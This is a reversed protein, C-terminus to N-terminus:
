DIYTSYQANFIQACDVPSQPFPDPTGTPCDGAGGVQVISQVQAFLTGPGSQTPLWSMAVDVQEGSALGSQKPSAPNSVAVVNPNISVPTGDGFDDQWFFQVCISVATAGTNLIRVCITIPYDVSPVDSVAICNFFNRDDSTSAQNTSLNVFTLIPCSM